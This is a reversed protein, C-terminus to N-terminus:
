VKFNIFMVDCRLILPLMREEVDAYCTTPPPPTSNLGETDKLNSGVDDFQIYIPDLM